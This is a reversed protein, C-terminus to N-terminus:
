ELTNDVYPKRFPIPRLFAGIIFYVGLGVFLVAINFKMMAWCAIVLMWLGGHVSQWGRGRVAGEVIATLGILLLIGPFWYHTAFLVGLGILWIGCTVAHAREATYCM